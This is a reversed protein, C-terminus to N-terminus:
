DVGDVDANIDRAADTEQGHGTASARFAYMGTGPVRLTYAGSEDTTGQGVWDDPGGIRRLISAFDIQNIRGESRVAEVLAGKMPKNAADYVVGRVEVSESLTITCTENKARVTVTEAGYGAGTSAMIRYVGPAINSIVIREGPMAHEVGQGRVGTVTLKAGTPKSGDAKRLNITLTRDGRALPTTVLFLTSSDGNDDAVDRETERSTADRTAGSRSGSRGGDDDFAFLYVLAAVGLVAAAVLLHAPKM